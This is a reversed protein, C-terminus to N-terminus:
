NNSPAALKSFRAASGAAHSSGIGEIATTPVISGYMEETFHWLLDLSALYKPGVSSLAEALLNRCHQVVTRCNRLDSRRLQVVAGTDCYSYPLGRIGRRRPARSTVPPRTEKGVTAGNGCGSSSSPWFPRRWWAPAARSFATAFDPIRDATLGQLAELLGALAMLVGAVVFPRPWALCLIATAAFYILFHEALWHLGTRLQWQEPILTAVAIAVLLAMGGLALWRSFRLSAM